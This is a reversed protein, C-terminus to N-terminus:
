ILIVLYRKNNSNIKFFCRNTFLTSYISYGEGLREIIRYNTGNIELIEKTCICGMKMILSLGIANM